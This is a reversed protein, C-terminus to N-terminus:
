LSDSRAVCRFGRLVNRGGPDGWYRYACRFDSPRYYYWSGGRLARSKGEEYWDACWEWVNGAMDYLGYDNAPYHGVASTGGADGYTKKSCQCKRADWEDGWPYQRGDTGRAAKEWQAETPLEVGAWACYATADHWSVNVIPHDEKSWNRNFDPASPMTLSKRKAKKSAIFRKYQGVTVPCKYIYYAPLTVTRRPNNYQDDDGMLFPGAPILIMEAGDKPNVRQVPSDPLLTRPVSPTPATVERRPVAAPASVSVVAKPASVLPTGGLLGVVEGASKRQRWNYVLCGAIVESLPSPLGEPLPPNQRSVCAQMALRSGEGVKLKGLAELLTIGLSWLDCATEVPHDETPALREPPKYGEAGSITKTLLAGEGELVRAIDFDILQWRGDRYMVNSPKVDLHVVRPSRTHTYDLASALGRALTLVEEAPLAGQAALRQHLNREALPMVLYLFEVSKLTARGAEYCRLIHPHSLTTTLRMRALQEEGDEGNALGIIKVAFEGGIRTVRGLMRALVEDARFVAGNGGCGLCERLLYKGNVVEGLLLQELGTIRM